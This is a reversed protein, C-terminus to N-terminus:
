LWTFLALSTWLVAAIPSQSASLCHTVGMLQLKLYVSVARAEPKCPWLIQQQLSGVRM